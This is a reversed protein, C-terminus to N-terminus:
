QTLRQAGSQRSRTVKRSEGTVSGYREQVRPVEDAIQCISDGCDTSQTNRLRIEHQMGLSQRIDIPALLLRRQCPLLIDLRDAM